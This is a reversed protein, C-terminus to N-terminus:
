EPRLALRTPHLVDTQRCIAGHHQRRERRVRRPHGAHRPAGRVFVLEHGPGVVSHEFEPVRAPLLLEGGPRRM